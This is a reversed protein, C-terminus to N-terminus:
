AGTLLCKKPDAINDTSPPQIYIPQIGLHPLSQIAMGETKAGFKTEMDGGIFIKTGRKLLVSADMSQDDKKKPNMHDTSKIKALKLKQGRKKFRWM